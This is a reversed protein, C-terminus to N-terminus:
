FLLETAVGITISGFIVTLFSYWLVDGVVKAARRIRGPSVEADEGAAPKPALLKSARESM